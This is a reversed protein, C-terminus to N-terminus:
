HALLLAFLVLWVLLLAHWYTACLDVSLRFATDDEGTAARRITRALAVLGGVIHLGHLATLLYFFSAAPNGAVVIGSTAM